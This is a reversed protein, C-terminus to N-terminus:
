LPPPGPNRAFRLICVDSVLSPALAFDRGLETAGITSQESPGPEAESQSIRGVASPSEKEVVVGHGM